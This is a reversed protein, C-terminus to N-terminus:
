TNNILNGGDKQDSKSGMNNSSNRLHKSMTSRERIRTGTLPDQDVPMLDNYSHTTRTLANTTDRLRGEDM